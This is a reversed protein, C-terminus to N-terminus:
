KIAMITANQSNVTKGIGKMCSAPRVTSVLANWGTSMAVAAM